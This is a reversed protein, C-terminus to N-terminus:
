KTRNSIVSGLPSDSLTVLSNNQDNNERLIRNMQGQVEIRTQKNMNENESVEQKKKKKLNMTEHNISPKSSNHLDEMEHIPVLYMDNRYINSHGNTLAGAERLSINQSTNPVVRSPKEQTM